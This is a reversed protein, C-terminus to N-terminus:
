TDLTLVPESHWLMHHKPCLWIIEKPKGYDEHHRHGQENCGAYECRRAEPHERRAIYHAGGYICKRGTNWKRYCLVCLNHNQGISKDIEIGCVRCYRQELIPRNFIKYLLKTYGDIM